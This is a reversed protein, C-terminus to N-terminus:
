AGRKEKRYYTNYLGICVVFIIGIIVAIKGNPTPGEASSALSFNHAFAAGVMLGIITIASDSNGEASLVLQRTPCGGLLASALGALVMGLFNWLGDTHAVPQDAFSLNFFSGDTVGTLILNTVLAGLFVAVFGWLLKRDGFLATDRIGGVMCMRTKQALVGVILGAIISIIFPAHMAGPGGGAETMRIFGPVILAFITFVVAIIVIISGEATGLKYTRRLSYGKKLFVVGILIGVVYGALGFIANLDGGALRLITRFPCGLFMLAGVMVFFGLFFRTIPSSGGKASFERNILAMIFAGLILGGIEPRIYQVPAASHLGLAGSIDRLFCAICFGMNKPNGFFVLLAAIIGIIGGAGIIQLRDKKM